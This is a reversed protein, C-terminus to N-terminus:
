SANKSSIVRVNSMKSSRTVVGTTPEPSKVHLVWHIQLFRRRSFVDLFLSFVRDVRSFCDKVDIKEVIAMKLIIGLYAKLEPLTLDKWRYWVSSNTISKDNLHIVAYANTAEVIQMLIEDSMFNQFSDLKSQPIEGVNPGVTQASFPVHSFDVDNPLWIRWGGDIVPTDTDSEDDDHDSEGSDDDDVDMSMDSYNSLLSAVEHTGFRRNVM